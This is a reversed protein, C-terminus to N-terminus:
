QLPTKGKKVKSTQLIYGTGFKFVSFHRKNSGSDSFINTFGLNYVINFFLGFAVQYGLIINMGPTIRSIDTVKNTYSTDVLTPTGLALPNVTSTIKVKGNIGFSLFPGIGIFANGNGVPAGYTINAPIELYSITFEFTSDLNGGINWYHVAKFGKEIFDIGTSLRLKKNLKFDIVLGGYFRTVPQVFHYDKILQGYTNPLGNETIADNQVAIPVVSSINLGGEIGFRPQSSVPKLVCLYLSAFLVTRKM